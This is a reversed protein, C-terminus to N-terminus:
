AIITHKNLSVTYDGGGACIHAVPDAQSPSIIDASQLTFGYIDRLRQLENIFMGLRILEHDNMM